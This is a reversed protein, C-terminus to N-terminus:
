RAQVTAHWLTRWGKVVAPPAPQTYLRETVAVVAPVVAQPNPHFGGLRWLWGWGGLRYGFLFDQEAGALLTLHGPDDTSRLGGRNVPTPTGALKAALKEGFWERGAPTVQLPEPAQEVEGGGVPLGFFGMGSPGVAESASGGGALPYRASYFSYGATEWWSGGNNVYDTLAQLMERWKGPGTSPFTEGYPNLIALWQRPGGQLAAMVDQPTALRRVPVGARKLLASDEFAKVWAAAEVDSWGLGVGPGYDVVGVAPRPGPWTAPAKGALDAPPAVRPATDRRPLQLVVAGGAVTAEQAAEGDVQASVRGEMGAPVPVAVQREPTAYVWVEGRQATGETVFCLGEAGYDVGAVKQVLGATLGPATAYFGFPPLAQGWAECATPDLNAAIDVAGYRARILGESAGQPGTGREHSFQEVPQGVYRSCVSKQVRDLWLLWQRRNERTLDGASCRASLSFGIGLSWSLTEANTVFQGLDHHLMMCKDHALQQALPYVTWTEPPYETKLDRVWEPGGETPVLAWTMGCLQTQSNIVRDWGGETSLPKAQCDETVQSLLGETYAYVTPSAPNTDYHWGRAGNQDQFLVDVPYEDTFQRITTRNAAQVAPHWHCVTWGDNQSYREYSPKGDLGKLLPAQGEREFTPGQPHDCWWTPNTYPMVLHGLAHARDFFARFQEPTGCAANPPLHDPYQKDFGGKLYDAFHILTPVPLRDLHKTKDEANGAYYLLLSNRLKALVEPRVKDELRRTILNARAYAALDAEATGGVAVRVLPTQWTEGAKLYTCFPRDFYGGDGDGGFALRGPIFITEPRKAGEWAQQTQPQVRYVSAAGAATDLHYFDAFASPYSEAIQLYRLPRMEYYFPYGGVEFWNGGARVFGGVAAVTDAMGGELPVPAWEGYPNLITLFSPDNAAALMARPSALEVLQARGTAVARLGRLGTRWQAVSVQSWGGREPSRTLAVLGLKSRGGPAGAALRETVALIMELAAARADEGVGGGIRWLSGSGGLHCASLYPGNASDVLTLDAQARTPPRNVVAPAAQLRQVLSPPLWQRGEETVTLAVAPDRDPRQDLPGGYLTEYGQSSGGEPRWGSPRDTPQQQFFRANCNIGISSGSSMPAIFQRLDAPSFRLRAPLAFDLLVKQKPTVEARLDLGEAGASVRIAVELEPASYSLQLEDGNAAAKLVRGAAGFAEAALTSNDVFRAQWLGQEGSRFITGASGAPSLSLLSGNQTSFVATCRGGSVVARTADVTVAACAAPALSCLVLVSLALLPRM